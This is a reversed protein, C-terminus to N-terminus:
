RSMNSRRSSIDRESTRRNAFPAVHIQSPRLLLQRRVRLRVLIESPFQVKGARIRRTPQLSRVAYRSRLALLAAVLLRRDGSLVQHQSRLALFAAVVM